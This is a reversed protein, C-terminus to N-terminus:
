NVGHAIKNRQTLIIKEFSSHLLETLFDEIDLAIILPVLSSKFQHRKNGKDLYLVLGVKAESKLAYNKVQEIARSVRVGDLQGYKVEVIIPNGIVRDLEDNWIAFDVGRDTDENSEVYTLKLTRFVEGLVYQLNKGHGNIRINQIQQLYSQLNDQIDRSYIDTNNRPKKHNRSLRSNRHQQKEVELLISDVINFVKDRDQLDVKIILGNQLYFPVDFDKDALVFHKKGLGEAVGIEYLTNINNNTLVFIAFDANRIKRKLIQQFSEGISFDYFDFHEVQRMELAEKMLSM